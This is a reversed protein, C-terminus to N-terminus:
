WKLAFTEEISQATAQHTAHQRDRCGFVTCLQAVPIGRASPEGDDHGIRQPRGRRRAARRSRTSARLLSASLCLLSAGVDLM